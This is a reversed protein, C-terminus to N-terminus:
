DISNPWYGGLVELEKILALKIANCDPLVDEISYKNKFAYAHEIYSNIDGEINIIRATILNIKEEDTIM